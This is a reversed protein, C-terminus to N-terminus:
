TRDGLLARRILVLESRAEKITQSDAEFGGQNAAKALQNLNSGIPSLKAWQDQNIAQVPHLFLQLGDAFVRRNENFFIIFGFILTVVFVVRYVANQKISIHLLITLM